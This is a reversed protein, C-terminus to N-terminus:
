QQVKYGTCDDGYHECVPCLGFPIKPHVDYLLKRAGQVLEMLFDVADAGNVEEDNEEQQGYADVVSKALRALAPSAAILMLLRKERKTQLEGTVSAVFEGKADAVEGARVRWPEVMEFLESM